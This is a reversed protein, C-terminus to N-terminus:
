KTPGDFAWTNSIVNDLYLFAPKGNAMMAEFTANVTFYRNIDSALYLAEVLGEFDVSMMGAATTNAPTYPPLAVIFSAYDNGTTIGTENVGTVTVTVNCATAAKSERKFNPDGCGMYFAHLEGLGGDSTAWSISGVGTTSRAYQTPSTPSIPNNPGSHVVTFGTWTAGDYSSM